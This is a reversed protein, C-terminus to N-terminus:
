SYIVISKSFVSRLLNILWFNMSNVQETLHQFLLFLHFLALRKQGRVLIVLFLTELSMCFLSASVQWFRIISMIKIRMLSYIKWNSILIHGVGCMIPVLELAILPLTLEGLEQELRRNTRALTTLNPDIGLTRRAM